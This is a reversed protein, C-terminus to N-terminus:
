MEVYISIYIIHTMLQGCTLNPTEYSKRWSESSNPKSPLFTNLNESVGPMRNKVPKWLFYQTLIYQMSMFLDSTCQVECSEWVANLNSQTDVIILHLRVSWLRLQRHTDYLLRKMLRGTDSIQLSSIWVVILFKSM